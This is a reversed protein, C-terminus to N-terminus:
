RQWTETNKVADRCRIVKTLTRNKHPHPPEVVFNSLAWWYDSLYLLFLVIKARYMSAQVRFYQCLTM